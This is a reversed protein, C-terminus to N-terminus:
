EGREYNYLRASEKSAIELKGKLLKRNEKGIASDSLDLGKFHKTKNDEESIIQNREFDRSKAMEEFHEECAFD